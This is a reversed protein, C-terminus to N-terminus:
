HPSCGLELTSTATDTKGTGDTVTLEITYVGPRRYRHLPHQESSEAGDGFSWDWAVIGTDPFDVAQIKERCQQWNGTHETVITGLHEGQVTDLRLAMRAGPNMSTYSVTIGTVGSLDLAPFRVIEGLELGQRVSGSCSGGQVDVSGNEVVAAEAEIRRVGNGSSLEIWDLGAIWNYGATGVLLLDRVDTALFVDTKQCSQWSGTHETAVAGVRPGHITDLRVEIEGGPNMSAYGVSIHTVRTLDVQPFVIAEGTELGERVAGSCNGYRIPVSGAGVMAYEAELREFEGDRHIDIWDIGAIWHQGSAGFLVLDHVGTIGNGGCGDSQDEFQCTLGECAVTFDADLKCPPDAAFSHHSDHGVMPWPTVNDADADLQWSYIRSLGEIWVMELKGDADLDAIAPTNWGVQGRWAPRSFGEIREGTYRYAEVVNEYERYGHSSIIDAVGDGDVDALAPGSYGFYHTWGYSDTQPWGSLLKGDGRWVYLGDTFSNVTHDYYLGFGIVVELHGDGTVDGIAIPNARTPFSESPVEVPWGVVSSGDHHYAFVQVEEAAFVLERDGDRDLDGAALQGMSSGHDLTQHVPWGPLTKGDRDLVTVTYEASYTSVALAVEAQDDGDLDAVVPPSAFGTEAIEVPWGPLLVGNGRFAYAMGQSALVVLELGEVGDLEGLVMQHNYRDDPKIPWGPVITGDVRWVYITGSQNVVIIEVNGDGTVDGAVPALEVRGPTGDANPTVRPWGPLLKGQYDFLYVKDSFAALVEKFGDGTVDAITPAYSLAGYAGPDLNRFTVPWGAEIQPDVLITASQSRVTGASNQAELVIRYFGAKVEASNWVALVGNIVPAEGGNTLTIDAEVPAGTIPDEVRVDFRVQNGVAATGPIVIMGGGPHVSRDVLRLEFRDFTLLHHDIYQRGDTATAILRVTHLGDSVEEANWMALEGQTVPEPSTAIPTWETPFPGYGYDLEYQAFDKGAATGILPVLSTEIPEGHPAAILTELPESDAMAGAADIRGYGYRTDFGDANVDAASHRLLQRVQENSYAPYESLIVAALGVVHPAAMSTGAQRLYDEDVILQEPCTDCQAAKLSLIGREPEYEPPPDQLGAGPAGVDILGYNTFTALGDDPNTASVVVSLPHNQPSYHMTDDRSNGASFVVVSGLGHALEVADEYVPVLPCRFICGWSNNIVQAGNQAAYIIGQALNFATGRGNADLCKVGMVQADPAVGVIGLNNNDQAAITGSVHTGHGHDDMPDGDGNAMDWGYLDDVYGNGDDDIGNDIEGTNRWVNDALDPHLRDVGTDVVAVLVGDGRASDWATEAGITELGWLDRYSQEFSGSTTLYPDNPTYHAEVLYNPHAYEVHPDRNFAALATTLDHATSFGVLYTNVSAVSLPSSNAAAQRLRSNKFRQTAKATTLGVRGPVMATVRDVDFRRLLGDVSPSAGATARSFQRGKAFWTQACQNVAFEGSSKFKVILQGPVVGREDFETPTAASVATPPPNNAVAQVLPIAQQDPDPPTGDVGCGGVLGGSVMVMLLAALGRSLYMSFLTNTRFHRTRRVKM